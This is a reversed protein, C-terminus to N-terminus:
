RDRDQALDIWNMGGLDCKRFMCRLIIRVDIGRDGLQDRERVNGWGFGAYAERRGMLAVHGAWRM